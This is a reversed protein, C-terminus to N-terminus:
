WVLNPSHFVHASVAQLKGITGDEPLCDTREGVGMWLVSLCFDCVFCSKRGVIVMCDCETRM